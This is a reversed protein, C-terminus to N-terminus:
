SESDEKELMARIDAPLEFRDEPLEVNQKVSNVRISRTQGMVKITTMHAMSIGDVKKYDTPFAEVPISGMQTEVTTEMKNILHTERDYYFTEEQGSPGVQIVKYCPRGDVDAVEVTKVTEFNDRWHIMRDFTADKLVQAKEPDEKIVPGTMTSIEWVTEGDTGREIKGLADAEVVTYIKNPKAAYVSLSAKVGANVIEFTADMVRNNIKDHAAKGGVAEVFEDIITAAEPLKAATDVAAEQAMAPLALLVLTLAAPVIWATNRAIRHRTSYM